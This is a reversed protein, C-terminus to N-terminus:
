LLCLVMQGALQLPISQSTWTYIRAFLYPLEHFLLSSAWCVGGVGALVWALMRAANAGPRSALRAFLAAGGAPGTLFAALMLTFAYVSSGLTLSLVRTWGVECLMAAFGSLAFVTLVTARSPVADRRATSPRSGQSVPAAGPRDEAPGSAREALAGP